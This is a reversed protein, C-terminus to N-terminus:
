LTDNIGEVEDALTMQYKADNRRSRKCVVYAIISVLALVVPILTLVVMQGTGLKRRSWEEGGQRGVATADKGNQLGPAANVGRSPVSALRSCVTHANTCNVESGQGHSSATRKGATEQPIVTGAGNPSAAPAWPSTPAPDWEGTVVPVAGDGPLSANGGRQPSATPVRADQGHSSATRKRATEQPIVTGAGNPSAAPAWPSSLAPDWEGTVVPVADVGPLSANGGRQPSATPVRADQGHSSATRKGATEQPIVTGAGNPSAAPAWPSSSAPDWEGTVVPVTGDGPLSANGGMQPSATPGPGDQGHSSATRKGATEQPIVTGAGNPSAAPAWPSSPAPDWEGTVVPVAGDGPLSANGGMQPSATPGHGDQGHSSATRQGATEQPIVTGAGNPSAAPAWPSSPAPDWEGTVVPVAGDGPLSANGGRQPSATPGRGDQGHSSATRKGATEQPIVTGAGNPSAAPTWPSSSAPDWEGTVVPVTGDGPLNANGGRQPSATPVRADQGHSSATRQGATEQPIVMGAGNLSAAPAWPSSLAPDWEGTVVPVTGDGPLSANGGKQPSATPVRADLTRGSTRSGVEEGDSVAGERRRGPTSGEPQRNPKSCGINAADLTNRQLYVDIRDKLRKTWGQRPDVCSTGGRKPYFVVAEQLTGCVSVTRYCKHFRNFHGPKVEYRRAQPCCSSLDVESKAALGSQLLVVNALLFSVTAVKYNILWFSSM